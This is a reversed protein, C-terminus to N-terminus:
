LTSSIFSVQSLIFVAVTSLCCSSVHKQQLALDQHSNWPIACCVLELTGPQTHPVEFLMMPFSFLRLLSSPFCIFCGFALKPSVKRLVKPYTYGKSTQLTSCWLCSSLLLSLPFSFSLSYSITITYYINIRSVTRLVKCLTVRKNQSVAGTKSQHDELM